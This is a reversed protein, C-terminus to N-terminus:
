IQSLADGLSDALFRVLSIVKGYPIRTPGIIGLVGVSRGGVDYTASVISCDKMEERRNETGIRIWVRETGHGESLLDEVVEAQELASLV